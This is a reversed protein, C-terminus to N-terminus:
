QSALGPSLHEKDNEKLILYIKKGKESSYTKSLGVKILLNKRLEQEKIPGLVQEKSKESL